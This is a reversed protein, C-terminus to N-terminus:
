RLVVVSRTLAHGGAEFRVFYCGPASTRVGDLTVVQRGAPLDSWQRRDIVRGAVDLLELTAPGRAPTALAFQLPGRGPNPGLRQVDLMTAAPVEVWADEAIAPGHAGLTLRYGYRNGRVVNADEIAVMDSGDVAADALWEWRGDVSREVRPSAGRAGPVVWRVRVASGSWGSEVLSALAPTPVDSGALHIEARFPVTSNLLIVDFTAVFSLLSDAPSYNAEWVDFRGSKVGKVGSGWVFYLGNPSTGVPPISGTVLYSGPVIKAGNARSFDWHAGVGAGSFVVSVANNGANRWFSFSADRDLFRRHLGQPIFSIPDVNIEIYSPGAVHIWTTLSDTGAAGEAVVRVPFNGPTTGGPWQVIATGGAQPTLTTGEPAELLTWSVDDALVGRAAITYGIPQSPDCFRDAPGDLYWTTDPDGVFVEGVHSPSTGTLNHLEWVLWMSRISGDPNMALRRVHFRGGPTSGTSYDPLLSIGPQSGARLGTPQVSDYRAVAIPRGYPTGLDLIWSSRLGRWLVELGGALPRWTLAGDVATMETVGAGAGGPGADNTIRVFDRPFTRVLTVVTDVKGDASAAVFVVRRVAGSTDQAGWTVTGAAPGDATFTAGEPLETADLTVGLGRTDVARAGFAVPEGVLRAIEAPADVYLATDASVRVEGILPGTVGKCRQAFTVWLSTVAGNADRRLRRVHFSASDMDCLRGDIKVHLGPEDLQQTQYRRAGTFVGQRLSRKFPSTFDFELAHGSGSFTLNVTSDSFMSTTVLGDSGTLRLSGGQSVPDGPSGQTAFLATRFAEITTSATDAKGDASTAVWTLVLSGTSAPGSPWEFAATGDGHDVLTGGEPLASSSFTIALGRTDVASLSLSTARGVETAVYRPFRLYISTDADYRLEGRLGGMVKCSQDFKVWLSRVSGDPTYRVRRVDFWGDVGNNCWRGDQVLDMRPDPKPTNCSACYKPHQYEGAVLSQGNAAGFALSWVNDRTVVAAKVGGFPIREFSFWANRPDRSEDVGRAVPDNADSDVVFTAPPMARLIITSTDSVGSASTTRVVVPWRGPPVTGAPAEFSLTGDGHDTLSAGVPGSLLAFQVPRGEVEIARADFHFASGVPLAVEGPAIVYLTTDTDYRIEGSDPPAGDSAFRFTAWFSRIAGNPARMLRRVHFRTDYGVASNDRGCRFRARPTKQGRDPDTEDYLGTTLRRGAPATFTFAWSHGQGQLGVTLSSDPSETFVIPYIPREYLWPRYYLHYSNPSNWLRVRFPVRAQIRSTVTDSAGSPSTAVFTATATSGVAPGPIWEFAGSGDHRDVFTAAAPLSLAALGATGGGAVLSTVDFRVPEGRTVLKMAPAQVDLATDCNLRIEGILGGAAGACTEELQAWLSALTGDPALRYRRLRLTGSDLSSCMAGVNAFYIGTEESSHVGDVQIAEHTGEALVQGTPARMDWDWQRYWSHIDMAFYNPSAQKYLTVDPRQLITTLGHTVPDAPSGRLSLQFRTAVRIFTMSTDQLGEDNTATIRVAYRGEAAPTAPWRLVATGAGTPVLEAGAPLPSASLTVPRGRTDVASIPISVSDSTYALAVRPCRIYLSTDANWRIEGNVGPGFRNPGTYRFTVWLSSIRNSADWTAKRVEFQGTPTTNYVGDYTLLISPMDAMPYNTAAPAYIGPGFPIESPPGFKFQWPVAQGSLKVTVGTLRNSTFTLAGAAPVFDLHQNAPSAGPESDIRIRTDQALAAPPLCWAVVQVALAALAVAHRPARREMLM